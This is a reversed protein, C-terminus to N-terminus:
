YVILYKYERTETQEYSFTSVKKVNIEFIRDNRDRKYEFDTVIKSGNSLSTLKSPMNKVRKGAINLFNAEEAGCMLKVGQGGESGFCIMHALDIAANNSYTNYEVREYEHIKEKTDNKEVIWEFMVINGMSWDMSTKSVYGRTRMHTSLLFDGDYKYTFYKTDEDGETLEGKTMKGHKDLEFFGKSMWVKLSEENLSSFTIKRSDFTLMTEKIFSPEGNHDKEEIKVNIPNGQMDYKFNMTGFPKEEGNIVEILEISKIPKDDIVIGDNINKNNDDDSSCSVMLALLMFLSLLKKM